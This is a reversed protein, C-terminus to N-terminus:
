DVAVQRRRYSGAQISAGRSGQLTVGGAAFRDRVPDVAGPLVLTAFRVVPTSRGILPMNLPILRQVSDAEDRNGRYQREVESHRSRVGSEEADVEEEDEAAKEDSPDQELLDLASPNAEHVEPRTSDPTESRRDNKRECRHNRPTGELCRHCRPVGQPGVDSCRQPVDRVPM